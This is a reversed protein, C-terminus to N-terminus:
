EQRLLYTYDSIVTEMLKLLGDPIRTEEGKTWVYTEGFFRVKCKVSAADLVAFGQNKSDEM